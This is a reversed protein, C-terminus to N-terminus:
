PLDVAVGDRYVGTVCGRLVTGPELRSLHRYPNEEPKLRRISGVVERKPYNFRLVLVDFVEGVRVCQRLEGKGFWSVEPALVVVTQDGSKLYLGYPEVRVVSGRIVSGIELMITGEPRPRDEDGRPITSM